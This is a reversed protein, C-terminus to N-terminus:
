NGVCLIHSYQHYDESKITIRILYILLTIIVRRVRVGIIPCGHVVVVNDDYLSSDYAQKVYWVTYWIMTHGYLTTGYFLM